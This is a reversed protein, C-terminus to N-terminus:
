GANGTIFYFVIPLSRCMSLRVTKKLITSTKPLPKTISLNKQLMQKMGRYEAKPRIDALSILMFEKYSYGYHKIAADNVQLFRMTGVEVIWMPQPNQHFLIEFSIDGENIALQEDM